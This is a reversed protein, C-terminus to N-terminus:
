SYLEAQFEERVSVGLDWQQFQFIIFIIIYQPSSAPSLKAFQVHLITTTIFIHGVSKAVQTYGWARKGITNITSQFSVDAFQKSQRRENKSFM